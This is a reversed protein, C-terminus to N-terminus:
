QRGGAVWLAFEDAIQEAAARMWEPTIEDPLTICTRADAIYDDFAAKDYDGRAKLVKATEIVLATDIVTVEAPSRRSM